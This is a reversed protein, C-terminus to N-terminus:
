GFYNKYPCLYPQVCIGNSNRLLGKRCFCGVECVTPCQTSRRCKETCSNGCDTYEENRKCAPRQLTQAPTSISTPSQAYVCIVLVSLVIVLFSIKYM